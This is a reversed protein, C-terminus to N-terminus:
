KSIYQRRTRPESSVLLVPWRDENNKVVTVESQSRDNEMEDCTM